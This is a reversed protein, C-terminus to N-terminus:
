KGAKAREEAIQRRMRKTLRVVDQETYVGAERALRSAKSSARDWIEIPNSRVYQLSARRIIDSRSTMERAAQEDVMKVLEKPM